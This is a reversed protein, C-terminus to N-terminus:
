LVYRPACFEIHPATSLDFDMPSHRPLVQYFMGRNEGSNQGSYFLRACGPCQRLVGRLTFVHHMLGAIGGM